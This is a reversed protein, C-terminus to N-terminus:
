LNYSFIYSSVSIMISSSFTCGSKMLYTGKTLYALSGGLQNNLVRALTSSGNLIGKTQSYLKIYIGESYNTHRCGAVKYIFAALQQEYVFSPWSHWNYGSGSM